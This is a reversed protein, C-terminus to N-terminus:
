EWKEYFVIENLPKRPPGEKKEEKPYGIPILGVIRITPPINLLNKIKAEDFVGVFVTGLGLARATLMLNQVAIGVDTMYYHQDWLVGSQSPNACIIIIVPAETLGKKAPNAKYGLPAFYSEVFSLESIKEKTSSDKIVIFRWCQLNAWSPAHRISELITQLKEDEVPSDTFKRISRRKKITEFIDM